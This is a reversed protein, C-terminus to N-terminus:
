AQSLLAWEVAILSASALVIRNSICQGHFCMGGFPRLPVASFAQGVRQDADMYLTASLRKRGFIGTRNKWLFTGSQPLIDSVM